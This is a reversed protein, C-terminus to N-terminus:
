ELDIKKKFEEVERKMQFYNEIHDQNTKNASEVFDNMSDIMQKYQHNSTNNRKGQVIEEFHPLLKKHLNSLDNKLIYASAMKLITNAAIEENKITGTVFIFYTKPCIKNILNLIEIGTFPGLNFDSIIIDPNFINITNELKNYNNIHTIDPNLVVKKIQREIIKFHSIEDEILLIKLKDKIM